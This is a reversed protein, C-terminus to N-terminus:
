ALTGALLFTDAVYALLSAAAYQGALSLLATYSHVTASAGAVFTVQGAGLQVAGCSFGAGLGAPVTVTIAAANNFTVVKGNDSALLTYTTGTQANVSATLLQDILDSVVAAAFSKPGANNPGRGTAPDSGSIRKVNNFEAQFTDYKQLATM